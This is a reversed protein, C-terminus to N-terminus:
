SLPVEEFRCHLRLFVDLLREAEERRSVYGTKTVDGESVSVFVRYGRWVNPEGFLM